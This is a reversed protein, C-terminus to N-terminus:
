LQQGHASETHNKLKFKFYNEFSCLNCKFKAEQSTHKKKHQYYSQKNKTQFDCINCKFIEIRKHIQTHM